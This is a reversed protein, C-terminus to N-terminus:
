KKQVLKVQEPKNFRYESLVNTVWGTICKPVYNYQEEKTYITISGKSFIAAHINEPSSGICVIAEEETGQHPANGSVSLFGDISNVQGRVSLNNKLHKSEENLLNTISKNVSAENLLLEADYTGVYKKLDVTQLEAHSFQSGLVCCILALKKM